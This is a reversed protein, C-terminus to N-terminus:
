FEALVTAAALHGQSEAVDRATQGAHPGAGQFGRISRDAGHRLLTQIVVLQGRYAAGHLATLGDRRRGNVDAGRALLLEVLEIVVPEEFSPNPVEPSAVACGLPRIKLFADTTPTNPDAGRELLLKAADIQGWYCARHLATSGAPSITQPFGPDERIAEELRDLMGLDAAVFGDIKLGRSVLLDVIEPHGSFFAAHVPQSGLMTTATALAPDQDLLSAVRASDGEQAAAIIAEVMGANMNSGASFFM